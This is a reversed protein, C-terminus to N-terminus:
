RIVESDKFHWWRLRQPKGESEKSLQQYLPSFISNFTKYSANKRCKVFKIIEWNEPNYIPQAENRATDNKAKCVVYLM